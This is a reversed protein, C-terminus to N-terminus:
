EPVVDSGANSAIQRDRVSVLIDLIYDAVEKAPQQYMVMTLHNANSIQFLGLPRASLKLMEKYANVAKERDELLEKENASDGLLEGANESHFIAIPLKGFDDSDESEFMIEFIYKGRTLIFELTERRNTRAKFEALAQQHFLPDNIVDTQELAIDVLGLSSALSVMVCSM